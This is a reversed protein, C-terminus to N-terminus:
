PVLLTDTDAIPKEVGTYHTLDNGARYINDRDVGITPKTFWGGSGGVYVANQGAGDEHAFSNGADDYPSLSHGGSGGRGDFLPNRDAQIVMQPAMKDVRRGEPLNMFASSYCVNAPEAFDDFQKYDQTIMPRANPMSPCVFLRPDQKPVLGQRLLAYMPRTNSYRPVNPTRTPLWSANPVYGFWPLYGNNQQAYASMGVSALRLNEMCVNRRAISQAKQYGPVFIGVFLTICAAIAILERLSLVSGSSGESREAPSVPSMEKFPLPKTREDIRAMVADALNVSPDPVEVADLLGLLNRLARSQGALEPSRSLAEEVQHAQDADLRNLHLDLLLQEIAEPEERM